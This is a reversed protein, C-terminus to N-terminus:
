QSAGTERNQLNLSIDEVIKVVEEDWSRFEGLKSVAGLSYLLSSSDQWPSLLLGTKM